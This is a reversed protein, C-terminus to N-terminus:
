NIMGRKTGSLIKDVTKDKLEIDMHKKYFEKTEKKMDIDKFDNPYATKALWKSFLATEISYHQGWRSIGTPLNYINGEQYSKLTELRESTNIYEFVDEGNVLFLDPDYSLLEELNIYNKNGETNGIEKVAVQNLKLKEIIEVPVSDKIDTRLLENVSHYLTKEEEDKLNDIREMIFELSDDIDDCYRKAKEEKNLIKGIMYISQKQEDINEFDLALVPINLKDMKELLGQDNATTKDCIILDPSPEKILEEINFHGGGKPTRAEKIEPYIELLLMDRMNGKSVSQIKESAGLVSIIHVAPSFIAAINKPEKEIIVKRDLSDTILVEGQKVEIDEKQEVSCGTIFILILLLFVIIGRKM